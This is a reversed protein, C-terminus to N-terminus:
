SLGERLNVANQKMLDIYTVGNRFDEPTVNHCSHFLLPKAGTEDAIMNAVTPEAIEEYYIVPINNEKISSIMESMVKASPETEGSCSDFASVYDLGYEQTFYYLAFKGGFYITNRKGDAVIERFESDLEQLQKKYNEANQKYYDSNVSDTECLAEAINDAMQMAIVPSTWIHPDYEHHHEEEHHEDEDDHHQEDEEKVLQIGSSGDLGQTKDTNSDGVIDNAWSELYEGTYIFLDSKNINIIDAPTPEYSHSDMGSPLLLTIEAKDGAIQRAFDYQPFLTASIKIKGSDDSSSNDTSTCSTMFILFAATFLSLLKKM